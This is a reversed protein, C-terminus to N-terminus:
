FMLYDLLFSKKELTCVKQLRRLAHEGKTPIIRRIARMFSDVPLRGEVPQRITSEERQFEDQVILLCVFHIFLAETFIVGSVM